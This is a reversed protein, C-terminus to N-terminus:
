LTGFGRYFVKFGLGKGNIYDDGTEYVSCFWLFNEGTFSNSTVPYIGNLFFWLIFTFTISKMIMGRQLIRKEM